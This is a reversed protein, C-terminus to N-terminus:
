TGGRVDSPEAIPRAGVATRADDRPTPGRGDAVWAIANHVLRRYGPNAFTDPGDGPQIYVIRSTPHPRVWAVVNSGRPHTWGDRSGRQGAVALAASSFNRDEYDFDSRLLPEVEDEFVQALYVEDVVVFGDGLGEVIPHDHDVVGLHERVDLRYGSDPVDATPQYHFRGGVIHGYEEWAPWGALAHHLFVLGHGAALLDQFGDVFDTPPTVFGPPRRDARFQIGPMDYLVYADWDAGQEPNFFAQAAPHEVHCPDVDPLADFMECFADRAFRHGGTVVLTRITM